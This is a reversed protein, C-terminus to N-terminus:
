VIVFVCVVQMESLLIIYILVACVFSNFVCLRFMRVKMCNAIRKYVLILSNDLEVGFVTQFLFKPETVSQIKM